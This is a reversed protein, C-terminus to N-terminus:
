RERERSFLVRNGFGCARSGAVATDVQESLRRRWCWSGVHCNGTGWLGTFGLRGRGRLSERLRFTELWGMRGSAAGVARIGGRGAGALDARGLKRRFFFFFFIGEDGSWREGGGRERARGSGFQWRVLRPRPVEGAGAIAEARSAPRPPACWWLQPSVRAGSAGIGGLGLGLWGWWRASPDLDLGLGM